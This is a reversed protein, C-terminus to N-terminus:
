YVMSELVAYSCIILTYQAFSHLDQSGELFHTPPPPAILPTGSCNYYLLKESKNSNRGSICFREHQKQSHLWCPVAWFQTLAVKGGAPVWVGLSTVPTKWVGTLVTPGYVLLNKFYLIFIINEDTVSVVTNRLLMPIAPERVSFLLRLAKVKYVYPSLLFIYKFSKM